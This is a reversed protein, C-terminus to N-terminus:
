RRESLSSGDGFVRCYPSSLSGSLDFGSGSFLMTATVAGGTGADVVEAPNTASTIYVSGAVTLSSTAHDIVFNGTVPAMEPTLMPGADGPLWDYAWQLALGTHSDAISAGVGAYQGYHGSLAVVDGNFPGEPTTGTLSVTGGCAAVLLVTSLDAGADSVPMNAALKSSCASVFLLLGALCALARSRDAEIQDTTRM